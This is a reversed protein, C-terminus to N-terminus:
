KASKLDYEIKTFNFSLSEIPHDGGSSSQQYSTIQANSLTVSTYETVPSASRTAMTRTRSCSWSASTM